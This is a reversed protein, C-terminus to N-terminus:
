AAQVRKRAAEQAGLSIALVTGAMIARDLDIVEFPESDRKNSLNLVGVLRNNYILPVCIFSESNYTEQTTRTMQPVDDPVRVFLPKRNHAVWGAIGQGVRVRVRDAIEPDIGCHAAIQLTDISDDLLMLSCREVAFQRCFWTVVTRMFDGPEHQQSLLQFVGKMFALTREMGTLRGEAESLQSFAENLYHTAAVTQEELASITGKVRELERKHSTSNQGLREMETALEALKEAKARNEAELESTQSSLQRIREQFETAAVKASRADGIEEANLAARHLHQSLALAAISKVPILEEIDRPNFANKRNSALVLMALVDDRDTLPVCMCSQWSSIPTLDRILMAEGRDPEYCPASRVWNTLVSGPKRSGSFAGPQFFKRVLRVPLQTVPVRVDRRALKQDERQYVNVLADQSVEYFALSARWDPHTTELYGIFELVVAETDSSGTLRESIDRLDFKSM